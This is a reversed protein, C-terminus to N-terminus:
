QLLYEAFFCTQYNAFCFLSYDILPMIIPPEEGQFPLPFLQSNITDCHPTIGNQFYNRKRVKNEGLKGLLVVETAFTIM